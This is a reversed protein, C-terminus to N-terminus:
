EGFEYGFYEIDKAYKEAVISRTEDDYYETYHKHKSKNKHPLEQRPIGIKDCIINFDEQFNEFKGIFDILINGNEDTIWDICQNINLPTQMPQTYLYNLTFKKFSIKNFDYYDFNRQKHYFYFSVIRDWPNRVFTFKFFEDFFNASDNYQTIPGSGITNDNLHPTGNKYQIAKGHGFFKNRFVCDITTGGCKTIHIFICKYKYSIM